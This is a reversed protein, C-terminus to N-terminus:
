YPCMSCPACARRVACLSPALSRARLPNNPLPLPSLLPARLPINPLPLPPSSAGNWLHPVPAHSLLSLLTSPLPLGGGAAGRGGGGPPDAPGATSVQTIQDFVSRPQGLLEEEGNIGEAREKAEAIKGQLTSIALCNESVRSIDGWEKCAEAQRVYEDLEEIFREKKMTLEEEARNREAKLRKNCEAV